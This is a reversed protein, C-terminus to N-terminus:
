NVCSEIKLESSPSNAEVDMPKNEGHICEIYEKRPWKFVELKREVRQREIIDGTSSQVRRIKMIVDTTTEVSVEDKTTGNPMEDGNTIDVAWDELGTDNEKFVTGKLQRIESVTQRPFCKEKDWSPPVWNRFLHTQAVEEKESQDALDVSERKRKTRRAPMTVSYPKSKKSMTEDDSTLGLANRVRWRLERALGPGDKVKDAPIAERAEKRIAEVAALSSPRSEVLRAESVLFDALAALSEM